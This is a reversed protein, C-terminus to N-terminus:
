NRLVRLIQASKERVEMMNPDDIIESPKRNSKVNAILKSLELLLLEVEQSFGSSRKALADELGSDTFLQEVVEVFSSMEFSENSLWRERQLRESSLEALSDVIMEKGLWSM